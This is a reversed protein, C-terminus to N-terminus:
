HGFFPNVPPFGLAIAGAQTYFREQAFVHQRAAHIDRLRRQLPSSSFIVSAGGLTYCGSVVDSCTAHIWASGQLGEVFDAEADLQGALARVWQDVVQVRLLARAARLSAGLRGFAHQFVPADKLDANAFLQRRGQKALAALDEVAASAIGVAVAGHLSSVFPALAAEFPGAVNSPGTLADFVMEAPVLAHELVVHHSGTGTLGSAQWTEEIRWREAPLIVFRTLPGHDTMVPEGDRTIVCHGVIWQANQCGSSFPWRGSVRFGGDTMEARGAPTGVGVVMPDAGDAFVRGYIEPALRTCFLQSGTAIMAVWGVSSDAASLLEIATVVDPVSLELGGHSRPVLSKFLGIRRLSDIIDGPVRRASEIEDSRAAFSPALDRIAALLQAADHSTTETSGRADLRRATMSQAAVMEDEELRAQVAVASAFSLTILM